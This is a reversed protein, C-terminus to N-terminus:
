RGGGGQGTSSPPIERVETRSAQLFSWYAKSLATGAELPCAKDLGTQGGKLINIFSHFCDYFRETGEKYKSARVGAHINLLNIMEVDNIREVTEPFLGYLEKFVNDDERRNPGIYLRADAKADGGHACANGEAIIRRDQATACILEDRKFTSVFRNRLRLHANHSIQISKVRRELRANSLELSAIHEECVVLQNDKDQNERQLRECTALLQTYSLDRLIAGSKSHGGSEASPSGCRTLIHPKDRATSKEVDRGGATSTFVVGNGLLYQRYQIGPRRDCDGGLSVGRYQECLEEIGFDRRVASFQLRIDKYGSSYPLM